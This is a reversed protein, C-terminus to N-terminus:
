FLDSRWRLMISQLFALFNNSSFTSVYIQKVVQFLFVTQWRYSTLDSDKIHFHLSSTLGFSLAPHLQVHEFRNGM